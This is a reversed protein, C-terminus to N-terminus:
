VNPKENRWVHTRRTAQGAAELDKHIALTHAFLNSDDVILDYDFTFKKNGAFRTWQTNQSHCACRSLSLKAFQKFIRAGLVISKDM